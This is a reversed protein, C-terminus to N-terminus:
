VRVIRIERGLDVGEGGPFTPAFDGLGNMLEQLQALALVPVQYKDGVVHALADDIAKGPKLTDDPFPFSLDESLVEDSLGVIDAFEARWGKEHIAGNGNRGYRHADDLGEPTPAGM